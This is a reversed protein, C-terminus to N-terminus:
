AGGAAEERKRKLSVPVKRPNFVWIEPCWSRLTANNGPMMKGNSHCVFQCRDKQMPTMMLDRCVIEKFRVCLTNPPLHIQTMEFGALNFVKCLVYQIPYPEDDDPTQFREMHVNFVKTAVQRAVIPAHNQNASQFLAYSNGFTGIYKLKIRSHYSFHFWATARDGRLLGCLNNSSTTGCPIWEAVCVMLGAIDDESLVSKNSADDLVMFEWFAEPAARRPARVDPADVPEVAVAPRPDMLPLDSFTDLISNNSKGLHQSRTFICKACCYPLILLSRQLHGIMCITSVHRHPHQSVLFFVVFMCGCFVHFLYLISTYGLVRHM